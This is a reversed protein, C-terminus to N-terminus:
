RAKSPAADIGALIQRIRPAESDGPQLEIFRRLYPVAQVPRNLSQLYLLGLDFNAEVDDPDLRLVERLHREAAGLDKRGIALNAM